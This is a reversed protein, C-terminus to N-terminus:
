KSHSFLWPMLTDEKFVYDWANHNVNKYITLRPKGGASIIANNMTSAFSVPVVADDEGHFIWINTKRAFKQAIIQLGGGCISIAAAFYDPNRYLLEFTGMGGMSLGGIYMQNRNVHKLNALSDVLALLLKMSSTPPDDPRFDFHRNGNEDFRFDVRAWYDNRPCQPFIVIAPFHKRNYDSSFYQGGHTLQSKNDAGREGAGHLFLLLPYKKGADFNEPYMVRLPLNETHMTFYRFEFLSDTQSFMELVNFILFLIIVFNKM